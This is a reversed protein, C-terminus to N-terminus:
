GALLSTLAANPRGYSVIAVDLDVGAFRGLAREIADLVWAEANGFAGAGLLALYM